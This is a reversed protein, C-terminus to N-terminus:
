MQSSVGLAPLGPWTSGLSMPSAAGVAPRAWVDLTDAALSQDPERKTAGLARLYASWAGDKDKSPLCLSAPTAALIERACWWQLSERM